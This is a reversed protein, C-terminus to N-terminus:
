VTLSGPLVSVWSLLKLSLDLIQSTLIEKIKAGKSKPCLFHPQHQVYLSMVDAEWNIYKSYWSALVTNLLIEGSECTNEKKIEAMM